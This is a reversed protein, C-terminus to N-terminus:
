FTSSKKSNVVYYNKKEEYLDVGPDLDSGDTLVEDNNPDHGM